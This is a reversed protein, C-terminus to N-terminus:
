LEINEITSKQIYHNIIGAPLYIAWLHDFAQLYPNSSCGMLFCFCGVMFPLINQSNPNSRVVLIAKLFLWGFLTLLTTLGLLGTQFFWAVYSLEYMWPMERSRLIYQSHSALGTGLFPYESWSKLLLSLQEGRLSSGEDNGTNRIDFGNLFFEWFLNFDILELNTLIRMLILFFILIIGIIKWSNIKDVKDQRLGSLKIFSYLVFPALLINLVLSRRGSIIIAITSLLFALLFELFKSRNLHKGFLLLYSLLFPNLFLLSTVAPMFMQVESSEARGLVPKVLTFKEFSIPVLGVASFYSLILYLSIFIAAFNMTKVIGVLVEQKTLYQIILLYIFPWIVYVPLIKVVDNRNSFPFLLSWFSFFIGFSIISIFWIVIPKSIKLQGTILVRFIQFFLVTVLISIKVVYYDFPAVLMLFFLLLGLQKM